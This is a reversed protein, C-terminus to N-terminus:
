RRTPAPQGPIFSAGGQVVSGVTAGSIVPTPNPTGQFLAPVKPNLNNYVFPYTIQKMGLTALSSIVYGTGGFLGGLAGAFIPSNNEGYVTNNFATNVAGGAGGLLVNGTFRFSAGLPGSILGITAAFATQGPRIAGSQAYQGAADMGGGTIGGVTGLAGVSGVSLALPAGVIFAAGVPAVITAGGLVNQTRNVNSIATLLDTPDPQVLGNKGYFAAIAPDSIYSSSYINVNARQETQQNGDLLSGSPGTIEM